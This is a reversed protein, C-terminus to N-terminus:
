SNLLTKLNTAPDAVAAPDPSKRNEILRKGIMYSGPDNMADVAVLTDGAYYWHSVVGGEGRQILRDYGTSLGAIQLKVDYQDSWFWPKPVYTTDAGLMNEAVLEAQSIANGVSELRIRSGKHPFSACDGAAFISPDSTCGQENTAIGNDIVLGAAEALATNPRVGVGVIVFDVALVTGDALEASQVRGSADGILRKLAVGERLDVGRGSHLARFYSSTEPASVRQLIRESAEVLTVTLGKRAAVAAAELGIYGGGIVLVRRGEAFEHRMADADALSRITYVGDLDGGISAPIQNPVSGMTLALQDYPIDDGNELRVIKAERDIAAVRTGTRVKINHQVYFEDPRLLLKDLGAEGLLYAKSLPPRQYPMVPEDGIITIQGEHGLARLKAALAAGAQGAGAIVIGSM